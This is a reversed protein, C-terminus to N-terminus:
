EEGILELFQNESIITVGQKEAKELKSPGMNEGAVLYDTSGTVSATNKGGHAEIMEKLQDRSYKTFKGSIVISKGELVNSAQQHNNNEENAELQLAFTKLEEIMKQNAESKFFALISGAIRKGIEDVAILDEESANALQDISTFEKALKKAVTEGVFRIGLAYLVRPWPVEISKRIGTIINRASKDGFRDLTILQSAKLRYLDPLTSVLGRTYLLNVTEAGLGDINMARRSIFHELKGKIQPPCSASNPCYHASEGEVRMLPAECEPCSKIFEVPTSEVPREEFVVGTIKPIIEGGKEVRVLDNIHLGLGSIIDANHLSARKVTTGALQVPELNAVPTVAGTRGVQYDVSLLRTQAEEAKFKYAIAWRPSKATFGLQQQLKIDDVKIVAGDIEFPLDHRASDWHKIFDFVEDISRCVKTHPSIKLGWSRAKMLNEYHSMAPLNESLMYYLYADLPRRAVLSSNQLKLSGAAANRPNAFPMEGAKEKEANLWEFGKLPLFIEGRIEFEDPFDGKLKLPISRITRVNQTVDDGRTGDGRTIARVLKGNQYTLGIATGDYKLECTYQFDSGVQKVVRNHFDQLEEESYTNGLSLMPYRHNVQEFEKNLDSGVRMSPSDPDKFEPFEKELDMLERMKRDFEQDTIEPNNEVYYKHNHQNLEERLEEIKQKAVEREM